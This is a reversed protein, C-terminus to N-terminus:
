KCAEKFDVNGLYKIFVAEISDGFNSFKIVQQLEMQMNNWQNDEDRMGKHWYQPKIVLKVRLTKVWNSLYLLRKTTSPEEKNHQILEDCKYNLYDSVLM